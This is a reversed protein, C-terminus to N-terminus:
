DNKPLPPLFSTDITFTEIVANFAIDLTLDIQLADDASLAVNASPECIATSDSSSCLEEVDAVNADEPATTSTSAEDEALGHASVTKYRKKARITLEGSSLSLYKRRAKRGRGHSPVSIIATTSAHAVAKGVRVESRLRSAPTEPTTPSPLEEDTITSMSGVSTQSRYILGSALDPLSQLHRQLRDDESLCIIRGAQQGHAAVPECIHDEPCSGYKTLSVTMAEVRMEDWKLRECFDTWSRPVLAIDTCARGIWRWGNPCLRPHKRFHESATERPSLAGHESADHRIRHGFSTSPVASALRGDHLISLVLVYLRRTLM